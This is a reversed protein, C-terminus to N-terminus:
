SPNVYPDAGAQAFAQQSATDLLQVTGYASDFYSIMGLNPLKKLAAPIGRIWDARGDGGSVGWEPLMYPKSHDFWTEGELHNYFGYTDLVATGSPTSTRYPDWGIWDVVDNGPYLGPLKSWNGSYGSPNWVWDVNIAGEVEFIDHARRWYTVFDAPLEGVNNAGDFEIDLGFWVPVALQAIRLGAAHLASDLAGGAAAAWTFDQGSSFIRSSMSEFVRYGLNAAGRVSPDGFPANTSTSADAYHRVADFKRGAWAERRAIAQLYTEGTAAKPYIGWYAGDFHRQITSGMM